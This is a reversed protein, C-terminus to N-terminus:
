LIVNEALFHELMRRKGPDLKNKLKQWYKVLDEKRMGEWDGYNIKRALYWLWERETKPRWNKGIDYDWVNKMM